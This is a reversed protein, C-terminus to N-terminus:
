QQQDAAPRKRSQHARCRSRRVCRSRDLIQLRQVLVRLHELLQIRQILLVHLLLIIRPRVVAQLASRRSPEPGPIRDTRPHYHFANRLNQSGSENLYHNLRTRKPISQMARSSTFIILGRSFLDALRSSQSGRIPAASVCTGIGPIRSGTRCSGPQRTDPERIAPRGPGPGSRQPAKTRRSAPHKEGKTEAEAKADAPAGAM